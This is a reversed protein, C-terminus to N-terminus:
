QMEGMFENVGHAWSGNSSPTYKTMIEDPTTLGDDIYNEKLGKSVTEIGDQYSDFGLSSVSTIGWGWCNFSGPPIVHCLNSEQQAIAPIFRFDIGYKDAMQVIENAYPLLPSGYEALYEKVIEPRADGATIHGTVSPISSPLSAYVSVGVDSTLRAQVDLTNATIKKITKPTPISSTSISILSVLCAVLVLPTLVLFSVVLLVRGM